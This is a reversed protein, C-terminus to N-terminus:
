YNPVGGIFLHEQEEHLFSFKSEKLRISHGVSRNIQWCEMHAKKTDSYSCYFSNPDIQEECIACTLTKFEPKM